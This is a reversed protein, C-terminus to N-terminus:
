REVLTVIQPGSAIGWDASRAQSSDWTASRLDASSRKQIAPDATALWTSAVTSTIRYSGDPARRSTGCASMHTHSLKFMMSQRRPAIALIAVCCLANIAFGGELGTRISQGPRSRRHLPARGPVPDVDHALDLICGEARALSHGATPQAPDPCFARRLDPECLRPRPAPPM